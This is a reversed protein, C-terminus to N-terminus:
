CLLLNPFHLVHVSSINCFGIANLLQDVIQIGAGGGDFRGTGLDSKYTAVQNYLITYVSDAEKDMAFMGFVLDHLDQVDNVAKSSAQSCGLVIPVPLTYDAKWDDSSWDSVFSDDTIVYETCGAIFIALASFLIIIFQRMM